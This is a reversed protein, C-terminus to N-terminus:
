FQQKTLVNIDMLGPNQHSSFDSYLKLKLRLTATGWPSIQQAALYFVFFCVSFMPM